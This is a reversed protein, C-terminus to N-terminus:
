EQMEFHYPDQLNKFDGGWRNKENLSKWFRGLTIYSITDTLFDFTDDLNRKFIFIDQALRKCHQSNVIGKGEKAYIEAQEKTRYAEGMTWYYNNNRLYDLLKSLNESFIFQTKLLSM